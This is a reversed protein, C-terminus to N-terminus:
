IPELVAHPFSLETSFGLPDSCVQDPSAIRASLACSSSPPRHGSGLIVRGMLPTARVTSGKLREMKDELKLSM